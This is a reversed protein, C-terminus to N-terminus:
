QFSRQQQGCRDQRRATSVLYQQFATKMDKFSSYGSLCALRTITAPSVGCAQAVLRLSGFAAVEPKDLLLRMAQEPRTSFAIRREAILQKLDVISLSPQQGKSPM